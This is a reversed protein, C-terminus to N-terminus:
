SMGKACAFVNQPRGGPAQPTASAPPNYPHVMRRRPQPHPAAASPGELPSPGRRPDGLPTPNAWPRGHAQTGPGICCIDKKRLERHLMPISPAVNPIRPHATLRRNPQRDEACDTPAPFLLPMPKTTGQNSTKHGVSVYRGWGTLVM